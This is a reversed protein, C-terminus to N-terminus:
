IKPLIGFYECLEAQLPLLKRDMLSIRLKLEDTKDSANHRWDISSTSWDGKKIEMDMNKIQGIQPLLKSPVNKAQLTIRVDYLRNPEYNIEPPLSIKELMRFGRRLDEIIRSRSEESSIKVPKYVYEVESPTLKRGLIKELKALKGKSISFIFGDVYRESGPPTKFGLKEAIKRMDEFSLDIQYMNLKLASAIERAYRSFINASKIQIIPFDQELTTYSLEIESIMPDRDFISKPQYLKKEKINGKQYEQILLSKLILEATGWPIGRQAKLGLEVLKKQEENFRLEDYAETYKGEKFRNYIRSTKKLLEKKLQESVEIGELIEDPRYELWAYRIGFLSYAYELPINLEREFESPTFEVWVDTSAGVKKGRSYIDRIKTQNYYLKEGTM